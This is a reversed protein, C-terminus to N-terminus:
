IKVTLLPRAVKMLFKDTTTGVYYKEVPGYGHAGLVILDVDYADATEVIKDSAPGEEV